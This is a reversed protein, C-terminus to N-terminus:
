SKKEYWDDWEREIRVYGHKTLLEYIKERNDTYNHEITFLRVNWKDFPFNKLIDYENGETDISIYDIDRPAHYLELLDNLSIAKVKVVEGAEIYADRSDKRSNNGAVEKSSGYFGALVFEIEKGTEEGVFYNSVICRRNKRLQEFFKPNPEVCIGHWGFEKELLWTNSLRVGDSAGIEVFYGNRKYNTKELVWLDQGLQSLSKKRLHISWEESGIPYQNERNQKPQFLQQRQLALMLEAQIHELEIELIKLKAKNKKATENFDKIQLNLLNAAQPLLGMRTAEITALTEGFFKNDLHPFLLRIAERFNQIATENKGKALYSRGLTIHLSAILTRSILAKSVGCEKAINVFRRGETENGLQLHSSGILLALKGKELYNQFENINLKALNEWEGLQWQNRAREIIALDYIQEVKFQKQEIKTNQIINKNLDKEQDQLIIVQNKKKEETKEM